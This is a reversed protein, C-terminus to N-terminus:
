GLACPKNTVGLLHGGQKPDVFITKGLTYYHGCSYTIKCNAGRPGSRLLRAVSTGVSLPAPNIPLEWYIDGKSQIWSFQRGWHISIAAHIYNEMSVMIFPFRLPVLADLLAFSAFKVRLDPLLSVSPLRLRVETVM